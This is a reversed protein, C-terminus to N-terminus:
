NGRSEVGGRISGLIQPEKELPPERDKASELAASVAARYADRTRRSAKHCHSRWTLLVERQIRRPVCSWCPGCMLDFPRRRRGCGAPCISASVDLQTSM